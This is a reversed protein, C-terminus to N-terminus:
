QVAVFKCRYTDVLIATPPCGSLVEQSVHGLVRVVLLADEFVSCKDVRIERRTNELIEFLRVQHVRHVTEQITVQRAQFHRFSVGHAPM